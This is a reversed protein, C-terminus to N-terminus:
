PGQLLPRPQKSHCMFWDFQRVAPLQHELAEGDLAQLCHHLNDQAVM